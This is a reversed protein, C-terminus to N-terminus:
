AEERYYIVQSGNEEFHFPIHLYEHLNRLLLEKRDPECFFLLFGGGGAGLLKGGIAGSALGKEYINGVDMQSDVDGRDAALKLYKLAKSYDQVGNDKYYYM